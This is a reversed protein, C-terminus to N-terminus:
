RMAASDVVIRTIRRVLLFTFILDPIWYYSEEYVPRSRRRSQMRIMLPAPQEGREPSPRRGVLLLADPRRM